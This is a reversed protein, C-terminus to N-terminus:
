RCGVGGVDPVERAGDVRILLEEVEASRDWLGHQKMTRVAACIRVAAQQPQGVGLLARVEQITVALRMEPPITTDGLIRATSELATFYRGEDMDRDLASLREQHKKAAQRAGRRKM